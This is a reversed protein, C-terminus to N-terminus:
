ALPQVETTNTLQIINAQLVECDVQLMQIAGKTATFCVFFFFVIM